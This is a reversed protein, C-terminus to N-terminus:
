IASSVEAAVSCTDAVVASDLRVPAAVQPLWLIGCQEAAEVANATDFLETFYDIQGARLNVTRAITRGSTTNTFTITSM